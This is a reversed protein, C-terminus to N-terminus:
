IMRKYHFIKTFMLSSSVLIGRNCDHYIKLHVNMGFISGVGGDLHYNGNADTKIDALQDDRGLFQSSKSLKTKNQKTEIRNIIISKRQPM